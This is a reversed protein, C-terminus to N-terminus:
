IREVNVAQPGREGAIVDFSVVEHESLTRRGSGKIGSYHVFMDKEQGEVSIFGFGKADNFFKVKGQAMVNEKSFQGDM